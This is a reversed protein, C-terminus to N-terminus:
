GLEGRDHGDLELAGVIGGRRQLDARLLVKLLDAALGPVEVEHDIAALLEVEDVVGHRGEHRHSCGASSAGASGTMVLNRNGGMRSLGGSGVPVHSQLPFELLEFRPTLPSGESA